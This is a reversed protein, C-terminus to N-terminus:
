QKVSKLLRDAEEMSIEGAKFKDLIADADMEEVEDSEEELDETVPGFEEQYYDMFMEITHYKFLEMLRVNHELVKNMEENAKIITLSNGGLAFFSDKIGVESVGLIEEWITVLKEEFENRPAVYQSVKETLGSPKPLQNRDIKGNSDLPIQEMLTYYNPVMYDPVRESLYEGLEAPDIEEDSEYYVALYKTEVDGVLSEPKYDIIRLFNNYGQETVSCQLDREVDELGIHGIRKEWSTAAGYYHYDEEQLHAYDGIQKIPCNTSYIAYPKRSKWYPDKQYLFSKMEDNSIDAYRYFDVTKVHNYVSGDSVSDLNVLEFIEEDLAPLQRQFNALEREIEEIDSKDQKFFKFLKNEIIQGRSLTAGVVVGINNNYAYDAALSSSTLFCGHCVTNASKLSEKLIQDTNEHTLVIHDVGLQDTIKRINEMDSKTMYGNDYTAALVNLGMDVLNYIAYASGLGGSYLLLCDYESGPNRRKVILQKLDDLSKFYKDAMEQYKDLEQCVQCIGEENVVIDPYATSIDCRQCTKIEEQDEDRDRIVVVGNRISPHKLLANEIEGPEIRYGRIKVQDDIRGMIEINGDELWRGMDGTRYLRGPAYPNDIFSKETKAPNNIYGRALSDGAICIEGPVGIPLLEQEESLIYIQNNAVPKGIPVISRTEDEDLYYYTNNITAETPGYTNVIQGNYYNYFNNAVDMSISEAGILLWPLNLEGEFSKSNLLYTMGTVLSAPCYMMTLDNDQNNEMLTLLYEADKSQDRTLVQVTGGLYLPWFIEWVSPDFSLNTRQVITNDESLQFEDQMWTICNNVQRHEIMVGKPRGTSGSTYMVYALDKGNVELELNTEEEGDMLQDIEDMLLIQRSNDKVFNDPYVIGKVNDLFDKDPLEFGNQLMEEIIEGLTYEGEGLAVLDVNKDKLISDYDSSAYPGGAIIPVDIGWQRLLSVTKHFFEQFFTLTRIGILDPNYDEVLEKLEKHSDFDNGSKFIRGDVKDGFRDTLYTMLYILGLPQEAVNYLMNHSSFHQSLDLLLIKKTGSKIEERVPGMDFLAPSDEKARLQDEPLELDDLEIFDVIDQLCTIDVPLYANYKQALATENLIQMQVPLVQKLREKNLFYNNMFDAQYKRTFSKPFPLTEPLEHFARNKSIMIDEKSIGQSLAFEEMETNPFIKLIHVYPFHLWKIDKIFDLTMMAEEESEGPFGHMTAIELIVNPHETAIYQVVAKFKNLDLNKKLLKQLRPSATELSLNIGRTGAEVMLDIYDPELLDGRLGNPFFIQIDLNNNIILQFLRRSNDQDLNFCDDIFAFNTVGNNYYYEIERYINEASRHVHNKSWIKHCYLCKYPCGRTSQISICNTVSAMGIKNKYNRLDILSRDPVSLKNFEKIHGRPQTVVIDINNSHFNKLSTFSLEKISDSNTLLIEAGSDELLYKIRKEPLDPEIPLYAGGAKLIALLAVITDLSREMLLGVVSEKKLGNKRLLRALKNAKKNLKRYTIEGDGFRVAIKDPTKDVQIEFIRHIPKDDPYDLKNDNFRFLIKDREQDGLMKLDSIKQHTNDVLENIINEFHQSYQRIIEQSFAKENYIYTVKAGEFDAITITLDYNSAEYISYSEIDLEIANGVDSLVSDIPYNEIVLISDFIGERANIGAYEQIEVLPTSEYKERKRISSNLEQLLEAVTTDQKYKIRLPLTNIFLGVTNEINDIQATRGSVTTGFVIDDNQCYRKLLLGWALYLFAATTINNKKSYQHLQDLTEKSFTSHYREIKMEEGSGDFDTLITRTEFDELYNEWYERQGKKDRDQVLKVYEKYQGKEIPKTDHGKVLNSYTHFFEKLIIGTSWGDFLIHHHSIVMMYKKNDLQCLKVRFPIEELNFKIKRDDEKLQEPDIDQYFEISVQTNKLVLQVPEQLNEWRFTTRLIRNCRAVLEWAQRFVKQDLEGSITMSLQEFYEDGEPNKLYHFLIGEQIPTLAMIDEINQKTVQNKYM